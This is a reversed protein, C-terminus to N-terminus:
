DTHFGTAKVVRAWRDSDAAMIARLEEATTGTPEYGMAILKARVQRSRVATGIAISMRDIVAKPTSAPAFAAVWSIAVLSPFGQEAFTPVDACM